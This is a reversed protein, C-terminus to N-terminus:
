VQEGKVTQTLIQELQDLVKQQTFHQLYYGRGNEAMRAFDAPNQIFRKLMGAFAAEDEAGCVLGCDATTIIQAAGGGIAALVARGGSMYEQLKAPVTLGFEGQEKLSLLFADAQEYAQWLEKQSVRGYFQVCEGANLQECLAKCNELESGDGYLEVKFNQVGSHWVAAAARIFLEVNQVSGINGGFAFRVLRGPVPQWASLGMDEAHQPLYVMKQTPVGNVSNLYGTFPKSSVLVLNASNYLRRSYRHMLKYLPSGEGVGWAKICAPWIDLCYCIFPVKQKKAVRRAANAMLVPSTQYCLVADFRQRMFFGKVTSTVCFSFYNLARFLVGSRRSVSFCRVVKVGNYNFKRNKLGKCSAPVKGTAYDPLSTLVTVEHGRRVLESAIDNIRFPDPYFHQSVILLKM